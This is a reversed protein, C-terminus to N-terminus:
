KYNASNIFKVTEILLGDVLDRHYNELHLYVSTVSGFRGGCLTCEYHFGDRRVVPRIKKVAPIYKALYSLYVGRAGRLVLSQSVSRVFNKKVGVARAVESPSLGSALMEAVEVVKERGMLQEVILYRLANIM